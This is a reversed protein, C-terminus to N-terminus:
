CYRYLTYGALGIIENGYPPSSVAHLSAPFRRSAGAIDRGGNTRSFIGIHFGSYMRGTKTGALLGHEPINVIEGPYVLPLDDKFPYKELPVGEVPTVLNKERLGGLPM